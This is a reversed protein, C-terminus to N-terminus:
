KGDVKVPIFLTNDGRRVLLAVTRGAPNDALLKAFQEIGTIESNNM